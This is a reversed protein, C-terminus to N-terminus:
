NLYNPLTVRSFHQDKRSVTFVEIKEREVLYDISTLLWSHIDPVAYLVSFKGHRDLETAFSVVYLSGNTGLLLIDTDKIRKMCSVGMLSDGGDLVISSKLAFSEDFGIAFLKAKGEKLKFKTSGGAFFVDKDRSSELCLITEGEPIIESVRKRTANRGNRMLVIKIEADQMYLGLIKHEFLSAIAGFPTVEIEPPGFFDPILDFALTSTNTIGISNHGLMWIFLTDDGCYLTTTIQSGNLNLPAKGKVSKLLFLRENFKQIDSSDQDIVVVSGDALTKVDL